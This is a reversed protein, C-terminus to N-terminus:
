LESPRHYTAEQADPTTNEAHHLGKLLQRLFFLIQSNLSRAQRDALLCLEHHLDDPIRLTIKKM